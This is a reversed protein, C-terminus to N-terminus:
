QRGDRQLDRLFATQFEIAHKSGSRIARLLLEETGELIRRYREHEPFKMMVRDNAARIRKYNYEYPQAYGVYRETM